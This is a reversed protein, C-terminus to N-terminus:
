YTPTSRRFHDSWWQFWAFGGMLFFFSFPTYQDPTLMACLPVNGMGGGGRRWVTKPVQGVALSWPELNFWFIVGFGMNVFNREM